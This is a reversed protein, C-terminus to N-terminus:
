TKTKSISYGVIGLAVRALGSVLLSISLLIILFVFGIAPMAFVVFAFIINLGGSIALLARLWGAGGFSVCSVLDRIGHFLLAIALLSILLSLGFFPDFLVVLALLIVLVGFVVEVARRWGAVDRRLIGLALGSLGIAVFAFCLIFVLTLAAVGAEFLVVLSLIISIVGLVVDAIRSWASARHAVSTGSM